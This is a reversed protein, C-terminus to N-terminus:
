NGDARRRLIPGGMIYRDPHDLRQFGCSAFFGRRVTVDISSGWEFVWTAVSEAGRGSAWVAYADMLATGIGQQRCDPAVVLRDVWGHLRPLCSGWPEESHDGPPRGEVVGIVLQGDVAVLVREAHVDPDFNWAPKRPQWRRYDRAWIPYGAADLLAGLAERDGLRLERVLFVAELLCQLLRGLM